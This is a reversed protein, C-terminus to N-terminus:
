PQDSLRCTSHASAIASMQNRPTSPRYGAIASANVMARFSSSTPLDQECWELGVAESFTVREWESMPRGELDVYHMSGNGDSEVFRITFATPV